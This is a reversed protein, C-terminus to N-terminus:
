MAKIDELPNSDDDRTSLERGTPEPIYNIYLRIVPDNIAGCTLCKRIAKIPDIIFKEGLCNCCLSKMIFGTRKPFRIVGVNIIDYKDISM